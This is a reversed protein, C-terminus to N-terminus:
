FFQDIKIIKETKWGIIDLFSKVPNLFTKEFQTQYDIYKDLGFESPLEKPVSLVSSFLPNPMKLECYRIKDKDTILQYKKELKNDKVFKNFALSGKVHMPTRSMISGDTTTYKAIDSVSSPRAIDAFSKTFFDKRFKKIHDIMMDETGSMIIKYCEELSERCIRPTSSRVSEVGLTKLEPEKYRIGESDWIYMIYNKKARWVAREAIVERKMHLASKYANMNKAHDEFCKKIYPELKSSGFLDLFNIIEDRNTLKTQKVVEECNIYISDTDSAVIYDVGSTKCIKNMIINIFKDIMKAAMQGSTTIAASNEESYYRFAKNAIAGYASNIKIKQSWQAADLAEIRDDDPNEKKLAKMKNKIEVRQAFQTEMLRGMIGQKDKRYLCGNATISYNPYKEKIVKIVDSVADYDLLRNNEDVTVINLSKVFTEPSINHQIILHPYLSSLDFSLVWNYMAAIPSKVFGGPIGVDENNYRLQPVVINKTALDNHIIVDWLLVSTLADNYNVKADYAIAYVRDLFKLKEDIQFVRDVDMINYEFFKQPNKHYFDTLGDYESYDLKGVKLVKQSIYELSYSEEANQTFKKYVPIYDLISIGLPTFVTHEKGRIELKKEKLVGWPSISKAIEEGLVRKLRNIIYPIDFFDIYWGTIVDPRHLPSKFFNVLARLLEEETDFKVYIIDKSSFKVDKLGFVWRLNKIRITVAVIEQNALDIDPFSGDGITEIDLFWEVINEKKYPITDPFMENICVYSFKEFGYIDFNSVESYQKYFNKAEYISDFDIRSVIKGDLTRYKSEKDSKVFLYPKYPLKEQYRKGDKVGNILINNKLQTFNTYFM